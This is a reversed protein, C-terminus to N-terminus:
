IETCRVGTLIPVLLPGIRCNCRACPSSFPDNTIVAGLRTRTWSGFLTLPASFSFPAVLFSVLVLMLVANVYSISGREGGRQSFRIGPGTCPVRHGPAYFCLQIYIMPMLFPQDASPLTFTCPLSLLAPWTATDSGGGFRRPM